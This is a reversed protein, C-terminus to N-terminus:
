VGKKKTGGGGGRGGVSQIRISMLAGEAKWLYIDSVPHGGIKMFEFIIWSSSVSCLFPCLRHTQIEERM